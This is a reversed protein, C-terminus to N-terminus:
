MVKLIEIAKEKQFNFLELARNYNESVASEDVIIQGDDDKTEDPLMDVIIDPTLGGDSISKGFPTLWRAITIKLSTEPNIEILEQVSGKGFTQTGVLTAINYEQLAGALIESASASGKNVLIVMKLNDNFINYGKSRLQKNDDNGFDEQVIVKGAPLFWSAMDVAAELYGGPNGRLDLLLKSKGSTSFERLANRFDNSANASFNYASIEYIGDDRLKYDMAPIEIIDRSISIEKTDSLGERAVKIKVMTGVEGRINEVAEDLSYNITSAGDIELVVDGPLVGAKEAPTNKLPAIVTLMGEEMGIEMGVGSFNGKISENFSTNAEPELFVTYPDGLSDVMGSIAGYIRDKNSVQQTTSAPIYKEDILNWARWFNTLDADDYANVAGSFNKPMLNNSNENGVFYGSFFVLGVIILSPIILQIKNQKEITKNVSKNMPKNM